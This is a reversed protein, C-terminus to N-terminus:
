FSDANREVDVIRNLWGAGFVPFTKLSRYFGEKAMSFEHRVNPTAQVAALTQPGIVGDQDGKPLGCAQQLLRVARPPGMNVAADFMMYDLGSPLKDCKAANWYQIKYFPAVIAPTLARMDAETVTRGLYLEWARKTVGLNTMGGPDRPDNVYGGESKLVLALSKDFNGTM